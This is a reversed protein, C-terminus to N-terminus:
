RKRGKRVVFGDAKLLGECRIMMRRKEVALQWDQPMPEVPHTFVPRICSSQRELLNEYAPVHWAIREMDKQYSPVQHLKYGFVGVLILLVLITIRYTWITKKPVYRHTM